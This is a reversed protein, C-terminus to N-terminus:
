PGIVVQSSQNTGLLFGYGAGLKQMAVGGFSMSRGTGPDVVRGRFAGSSLAFSLSLKNPSLNDVFSNLLFRVTNTFDTSLNGGGFIVEADTLKLISITANAPRVYISGIAQCRNTFGGAYYRGKPAPPKIWDLDGNLDSDPQNTLTVQSIMLGQGAYLPIFLPWIGDRSVTASRSIKTGDALAGAFLARGAPDVRLTGYGIGDPVMPNNNQNQIVLTYNGAFPAANTRANFTARDAALNSIWTGDTVQGVIEGAQQDTGVTFVIALPREGRRPIIQVVQGQSNLQGSISFRESGLLIQGSYAGLATLSITFYGGTSQGAGADQIFLGSYIGAPPRPVVYAAEVSPVTELGLADLATVAFYYTSGQSLGSVTVGTAPGTPILKTYRRSATGYYLNYGVVNPDPDSDWVLGITTAAFGPLPATLVLVCAWRFVCLARGPQKLFGEM